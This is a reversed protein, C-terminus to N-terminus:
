RQKCAYFYAKKYDELERYCTELAKACPIPYAEEAALFHEAARAYERQGMAAQGFLYHYYSGQKRTAGLIGMCGPFDGTQLMSQARLLLERDDASVVVEEGAQWLLLLRQREMSATWYLCM